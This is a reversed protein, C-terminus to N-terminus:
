KLFRLIHNEKKILGPEGEKDVWLFIDFGFWAPFYGSSRAESALRDAIELAKKMQDLAKEQQENSLKAKAIIKEIISRVYGVYDQNENKIEQHPGFRHFGKETILYNVSGGVKPNLFPAFESDIGKDTIKKIWRKLGELNGIRNYDSEQHPEDRREDDEEIAQKTFFVVENGELKQYITYNGTGGDANRKQFFLVPTYGDKNESVGEVKGLSFDICEQIKALSEQTNHEGDFLVRPRAYPLGEEAVRNRITSKDGLKKFKLIPEESFDPGFVKGSLNKIEEVAFESPMYLLIRAGDLAGSNQLTQIVEETDFPDAVSYLKIGEIGVVAELYNVYNKALERYEESVIGIRSM